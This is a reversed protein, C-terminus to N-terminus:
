RNGPPQHAFESLICADEIRTGGSEVKSTGPRRIGPLVNGECRRANVALLSSAGGCGVYAVRSFLTVSVVRSPLTSQAARHESNFSTRVQAFDAGSNRRRRKM